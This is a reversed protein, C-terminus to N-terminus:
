SRGAEQRALDRQEGCCTGPRRKRSDLPRSDVLELNTETKRTEGGGEGAGGGGEGGWQPKGSLLKGLRSTSNSVWEITPNSSRGVAVRIPVSLAYIDILTRRTGDRVLCHLPWRADAVNEVSFFLPAFCFFLPSINPNGDNEGAASSSLCLSLSLTHEFRTRGKATIRSQDYLVHFM